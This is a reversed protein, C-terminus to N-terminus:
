IWEVVMIKKMAHTKLPNLGWPLRELLIDFGSNQVRLVWNDPEDTLKGERQLFSIRLNENSTQRLATWNAIIGQLLSECTDMEKETLEIDPLLAQEIPIGLLIKNLIWQSEEGEISKFVLYNILHVAKTQATEDKLDNNELLDLVGFLRWLYPHLIVAGANNVYTPENQWEKKKILSKKALEKLKELTQLDDKLDKREELRPLYDNKLIDNEIKEFQEAFMQVELDLKEFFNPVLNLLNEKINESLNKWILHFYEPYGRYFQELSEINIDIKQNSLDILSQYINSITLQNESIIRQKDINKEDIVQEDNQISVRNEVIANKIDQNEIIQLIKRYIKEENPLKIIELLRTPNNEVLFQFFVNIQKELSIETKQVNYKWVETWPFEGTQWFYLIIKEIYNSNRVRKRAAPVLEIVDAYYQPYIKLTEFLYNEFFIFINESTWQENKQNKYFFNVLIEWVIKQREAPTKTMFERFKSIKFEIKDLFKIINEIEKPLLLRLIKERKIKNDIGFYKKWQELTEIKETQNIEYITSIIKKIKIKNEKFLVIQNFDNELNKDIIVINLEQFIKQIIITLFDIKKTEISKNKAVYIEIENKFISFISSQFRPLHTSFVYVLEIWFKDVFHFENLNLQYKQLSLFWDVLVFNEKELEILNEKKPEFAFSYASKIDNRILFNEWVYEEVKINQKLNEFFQAIIINIDTIIQFRNEWLVKSLNEWLIQKWKPKSYQFWRFSDGLKQLLQLIQQSQNGLITQLIEILNQEVFIENERNKQIEFQTSFNDILDQKKVIETIKEDKNKDLQINQFLSNKQLNNVLNEYLKVLNLNTKTEKEIYNILFDVVIQEFNPQLFIKEEQYISLNVMFKKLYQELFVINAPEFIDNITNQYILLFSKLKNKQNEPLINEYEQWISLNSPNKEIEKKLINTYEEFTKQINKSLFGDKLSTNQKFFNMIEILFNMDKGAIKLFILSKKSLYNKFDSSYEPLNKFFIELFEIQIAEKQTAFNFFYTDDLAKKLIFQFLENKLVQIPKFTKKSLLFVLENFFNQWFIAIEKRYLYLSEIWKEFSITQFFRQMLASNQPQQKLFARLLEPSEETIQKFLQSLPKNEFINIEQQQTPSVSIWWTDRGTELFYTFAQWREDKSPQINPKFRKTQPIKDMLAKRLKEEFVEGIVSQVNNLSFDGLNIELSDIKIVTKEDIIEDFVKEAIPLLKNYILDKANSDWKNWAMSEVNWIIEFLPNRITHKQM